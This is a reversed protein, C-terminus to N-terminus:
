LTFGLQQFINKLRKRPGVVIFEDGDQTRVEVVMNFGKAAIRASDIDEKFVEAFQRLVSRSAPRDPIM